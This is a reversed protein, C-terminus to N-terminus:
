RDVEQEPSCELIRELEQVLSAVAASVVASMTGGLATTTAQIAVLHVEAGIEDAIAAMFVSLPLAHTGLTLGQIECASAIRTEGPTGGFDAADILIITDPRARRIPGIFNEPVQGVDFAREPFRRRLAEAVAPGAGDDGKLTNGVGLVVVRGRAIGSLDVPPM